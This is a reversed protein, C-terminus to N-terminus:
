RVGTRAAWRCWAQALAAALAAAPAVARAPAFASAAAHAHLAALAAAPGVARAAALASAAAHAPLAALAAPPPM